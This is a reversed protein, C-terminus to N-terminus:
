CCYLYLILVFSITFGLSWKLVLLNNAFREDVVIECSYILNAGFLVDLLLYQGNYLYFLLSTEFMCFGMFAKYTSSEGIGKHFCNM